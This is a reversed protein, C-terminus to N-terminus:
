MSCATLTIAAINNGEHSEAARAANAGGYDDHHYRMEWEVAHSSTLFCSHGNRSYEHGEHINDCKTNAMKDNSIYGSSIDIIFKRLSKNFRTLFYLIMYFHCSLRSYRTFIIIVTCSLHLLFSASFNEASNVTHRWTLILPILHHSCFYYLCFRRRASRKQM